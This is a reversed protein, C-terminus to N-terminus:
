PLYPTKQPPDEGGQLRGSYVVKQSTLPLHAMLFHNLCLLNGGKTDMHFSPYVFNLFKWMHSLITGNM